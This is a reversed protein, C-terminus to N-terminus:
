VFPRQQHLSGRAERIGAICSLRARFTVQHFVSGEALHPHVRLICRLREHRTFSVRYVRTRHRRTVRVLMGWIAFETRIDAV